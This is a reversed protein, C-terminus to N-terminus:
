SLDGLSGLKSPLRCNIKFRPSTAPLRLDPLPSPSVLLQSQLVRCVEGDARGYVGIFFCLYVLTNCGALPEDQLTFGQEVM